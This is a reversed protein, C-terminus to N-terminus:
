EWKMYTYQKNLSPRTISEQPTAWIGLWHQFLLYCARQRQKFHKPSWAVVWQKRSILVTVSGRVTSGGISQIRHRLLSVGGVITTAGFARYFFKVRLTAGLIVPRRVVVHKGYSIAWRGLVMSRASSLFSVRHKLNMSTIDYSLELWRGTTLCSPWGKVGSGTVLVMTSKFFSLM